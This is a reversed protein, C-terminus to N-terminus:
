WGCVKSQLEGKEYLSKIANENRLISTQIFDLKLLVQMESFSHWLVMVEASISTNGQLSYINDTLPENQPPIKFILIRGEPRPVSPKILHKPNACPPARFPHYTKPPPPFMLRPTHMLLAPRPVPGANYMPPPYRNISAGGRPPSLLPGPPHGRWAADMPVGPRFPQMPAANFPLNPQLPVQRFLPPTRNDINSGPQKLPAPPFTKALNPGVLHDMSHHPHSSSPPELTTSIKHGFM